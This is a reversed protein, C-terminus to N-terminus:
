KRVVSTVPTHLNGSPRSITIGPSLTIELHLQDRRDRHLLLQPEGDALTAPRDAGADDGLDDLLRLERFSAAPDIPSPRSALSRDREGAALALAAVVRGRLVLLQVRVPHLVLLETREAPRVSRVLFRALGASPRVRRNAASGICPTALRLRYSTPPRFTRLVEEPLHPDLRRLDGPGRPLLQPLRGHDHQDRDNMMETKMKM